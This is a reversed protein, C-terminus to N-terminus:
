NNNNIKKLNQYDRKFIRSFCLFEECGLLWYGYKRRLEKKVITEGLKKLYMAM